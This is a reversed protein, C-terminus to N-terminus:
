AFITGELSNYSSTGQQIGKRAECSTNYAGTKTRQRATERRHELTNLLFLHTPWMKRGALYHWSYGRLRLLKFQAASLYPSRAYSIM